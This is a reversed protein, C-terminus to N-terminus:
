LKAGKHVYGLEPQLSFGGAIPIDSCIGIVYSLRFKSDYADKLGQSSFAFNSLGVGARPGLYVQGSVFAYTIFFSFCLLLKKMIYM